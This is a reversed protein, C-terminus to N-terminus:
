QAPVATATERPLTNSSCWEELERFYQGVWYSIGQLLGAATSLKAEDAILQALIGSVADAHDEREDLARHAAAGRVAAQGFMRETQAIIKATGVDSNQETWFSYLVVPLAGHKDMAGSVFAGLATTANLPQLADVEERSIGISMLDRLFYRDHVAESRAYSAWDEVAGPVHKELWKTAKADLPRFMRIRFVHEALHRAIVAKNLGDPDHAFLQSLGSSAAIGEIQPTLSGLLVHDIQAPSFPQMLTM